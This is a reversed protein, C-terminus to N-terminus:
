VGRQVEEGNRLGEQMFVSPELVAKLQEVDEVVLAVGEAGQIREIERDQNPTTNGRRGPAKTECAVFRGKYCILFDPCGVRGMGNSVPMYWYAGISTLYKKVAGKFKAEPTMAM